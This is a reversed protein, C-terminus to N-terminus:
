QRDGIAAAAHVLRGDRADELREEGGLFDALAGAEAQRQDVADDGVRAARDVDRAADALAAGEGDIQRADVARHRRGFLLLRGNRAALPLADQDDVVFRRRACALSVTAGDPAGLMPPMFDRSAAASRQPAAVLAWATSPM